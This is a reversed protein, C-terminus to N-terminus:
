TTLASARDAPVQTIPHQPIDARQRASAIGM